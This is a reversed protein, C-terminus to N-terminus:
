SREKTPNRSGAAIAPGSSGPGRSVAMNLLKLPVESNSTFLHWFKLYEQRCNKIRCGPSYLLFMIQEKGLLELAVLEEYLSCKTMWDWLVELHLDAQEYTPSLGCLLDCSLKCFMNDTRSCRNSSCLADWGMRGIYIWVVGGGGGELSTLYWVVKFEGLICLHSYGYWCGGLGKRRGMFWITDDNFGGKGVAGFRERWM